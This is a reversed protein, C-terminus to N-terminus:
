EYVVYLKGTALPSTGEILDTTGFTILGSLAADINDWNVNLRTIDAPDGLGPKYLNYNQTFTGVIPEPDYNPRGYGVINSNNIAYEKKYVGGGNSAVGSQPSTNGEITYVTTDTVRYVIGTHTESGATGFFIQDGVKPSSTYFQGNNRYSNAAYDVGAGYISHYTRNKAEEVGYAQVFCWDTFVACWAFSQKPTNYFGSIADLDRAYKTFNADGANATKDDLQATSAKELYGVEAEAFAIVRSATYGM